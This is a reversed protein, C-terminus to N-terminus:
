LLIAFAVYPVQLTIDVKCKAIDNPYDWNLAIADFYSLVQEWDLKEALNMNLLKKKLQHIICWHVTKKGLRKTLRRVAEPSASESLEPAM